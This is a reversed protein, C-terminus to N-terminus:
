SHAQIFKIITAGFEPKGLTTIHNSGQIVKEESGAILKRAAAVSNKVYASEEGGYIFLTPLKCKKLDEASVALEGLSQGAVAFAKVDKTGYLFKAIANAQEFTPKPKDSPSVAIIYPGLGKGDEVAKAFIDVENSGTSGAGKIIPAQGGYIASIVREPHTAAINGVVFAGMSYGIMHAKQIKLHDLLRVVDLAMEIGYKGPDHPKESKGHGRCDIAIVQYGPLAKLKTNGAGDNGWMSSDGMWGHVLLIPIGSGETVYRIKVGKSDFYGDTAQSFVACGAIAITILSKFNMVLYSMLM